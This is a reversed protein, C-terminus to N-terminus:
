RAANWGLCFHKIRRKAIIPWTATNVQIPEWHAVTNPVLTVAALPIGFLAIVRIRRPRSRDHHEQDHQEAAIEHEAPILIALTIIGTLLKLLNCHAHLDNRRM